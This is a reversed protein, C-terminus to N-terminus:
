RVLAAGVPSLELALFVLFSALLPYVVRERTDAYSWGDVAARILAIAGAIPAIPGLFPAVGLGTSAMGHEHESAGFTEVIMVIGFAWTAAVTVLLARDRGRSLAQWSLVAATVLVLVALAGSAVTADGRIARGLPATAVPVLKSVAYAMVAPVLVLATLRLKAGRSLPEPKPEPRAVAPMTGSGRRPTVAPMTGSAIRPM